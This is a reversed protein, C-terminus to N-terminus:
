EEKIPLRDVEQMLRECTGNGGMDRYPEFLYKKLDAYEERSIHGRKIYFTCLECISRYGIGLIMRREASDKNQRSMLYAWFGSSAFVSCIITIVIEM